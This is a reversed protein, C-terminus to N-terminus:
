QINKLKHMFGVSSNHLSAYEYERMKSWVYQGSHFRCGHIQSQFKSSFANMAARESDTIVIGPYMRPKLECLKGDSTNRLHSRIQEAPGCLYM